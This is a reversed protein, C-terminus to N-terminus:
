NVIFCLPCILLMRKRLDIFIFCEVVEEFLSRSQMDLGEAPRAEAGQPEEPMEEEGVADGAPRPSPPAIDAAAPDEVVM